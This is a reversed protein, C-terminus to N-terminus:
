RAVMRPSWRITLRPRKSAALLLALPKENVALWRAIVPFEKKSWPRTGAQTEQEFLIQLSTKGAAPAPKEADTLRRAYESIGVFYEGKEPLRPIELMRCYEDRHKAGIGGPGVARLFPVAANNEPTVGARLRGNLAAVYDVYGDKRLPENIYTTEKSITILVRPKPLSAKPRQSQEQSAAPNAWAAAIAAAALWALKRKM